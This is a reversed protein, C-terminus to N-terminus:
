GVAMEELSEIVIEEKVSDCIAVEGMRRALVFRSKGDRIKKDLSMSEMIKKRDVDSLVTPLGAEQLLGKQFDYEQYELMGMKLSIKGACVMGLAVAEGHTFRSYGTAAEIAHGITHGYNLIARLGEEREDKEVVEAKIQCSRTVAKELSPLDHRKIKDMNERLFFFLNRDRIVGYKIIEALGSLFERDPLTALTRLDSIVVRPQYFSGILNKGRPHNIAVKGGVSSDVQALLTTPLQAYPIGRLFTSAVFGALDGIVGGGLAIILSTRELHLDVLRDYLDNVREWSKEKEGPPIRLLFPQFGEEKLSSTVLDGYLKGVTTDTIVVTKKGIGKLRILMKGTDKLLGEGVYIAYTREGLNVQIEAM